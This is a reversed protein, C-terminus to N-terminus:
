QVEITVQRSAVGSYPVKAQFTHTGTQLPWRVADGAAALQYPKGDVYWLLQAPAPAGSPPPMVALNAKLTLISLDAPVEPNRILRLNDKPSVIRLQGPKDGGLITQEAV